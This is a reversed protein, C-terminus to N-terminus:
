VASRQRPVVEFNDLRRAIRSQLSASADIELAQCYKEVSGEALRATGWLRSLPFFWRSLLGIAAKDFWPRAFLAGVPSRLLGSIM